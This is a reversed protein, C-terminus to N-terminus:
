PSLNSLECNILKGKQSKPASLGIIKYGNLTSFGPIDDVSKIEIFENKEPSSPKDINIENIVIEM